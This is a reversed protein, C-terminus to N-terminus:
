EKLPHHKREKVSIDTLIEAQNTEFKEVFHVGLMLCMIYEDLKHFETEQM